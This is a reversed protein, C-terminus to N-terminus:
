LRRRYRNRGGPEPRLNNHHYIGLVGHVDAQVAIYPTCIPLIPQLKIEEACDIEARMNDVAGKQTGGVINRWSQRSSIRKAEVAGQIPDPPPAIRMIGDDRWRSGIM